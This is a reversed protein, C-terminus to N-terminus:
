GGAGSLVDGAGDCRPLTVGDFYRLVDLVPQYRDRHRALFPASEPYPGRRTIDIARPFDELFPVDPLAAM